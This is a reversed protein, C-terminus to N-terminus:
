EVDEDSDHLNEAMTVLQSEFISEDKLSHYDINLVAEKSAFGLKDSDTVGNLSNILYWLDGVQRYNQLNEFDVETQNVNTLVVEIPASVEVLTERKIVKPREENIDDGILYGLVKIDVKTSFSREEESLNALNNTQSFDQQIFSEFRHGNKEFVFHNVQGTRTIFPSLMQNMQQQYECRLTISYTVAVYTPVPVYYEDYIVKKSYEPYARNNIGNRRANRNNQIQATKEQNIRTRVKFAGGRYKRDDNFHRLDAQVVGKFSPDKAMSTREITILPLKLKGVSDRVERNAKVQFARESGLWLLPVKKFGSNTITHINFQKDIHEFFGTDITEINCPKIYLEENNPM